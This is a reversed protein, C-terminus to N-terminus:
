ADTPEMGLFKKNQLNPKSANYARFGMSKSQVALAYGMGTYISGDRCQHPDWVTDESLFVPYSSGEGHRHTALIYDEYLPGVGEFCPPTYHRAAGPPTIKRASSLSIADHFCAQSRLCVTHYNDYM